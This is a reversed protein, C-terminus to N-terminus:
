ESDRRLLSGPRCVEEPLPTILMQAILGIVERPLDQLPCSGKEDNAKGELCLLLLREKEWEIGCARLELDGFHMGYCWNPNQGFIRFTVTSPKSINLVGFSLRVWKNDRPSTRRPTQSFTPANEEDGEVSVKWEATFRSNDCKVRVSAEWMGAPVNPIAGQVELWCVRLCELVRTTEHRRFYAPSNVWPGDFDVGYRTLARNADGVGVVGQYGPIPIIAPEMEASDGRRTSQAAVQRFFQSFVLSTM